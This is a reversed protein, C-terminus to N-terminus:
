GSIGRSEDRDGVEVLVREAGASDRRSRLPLVRVLAVFLGSLGIIATLVRESASMPTLWAMMLIVIGSIGFFVMLMIDLSKDRM